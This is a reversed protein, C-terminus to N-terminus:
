RRINLSTNCHDRSSVAAIPHAAPDAPTSERHPVLARAPEPAVVVAADVPAVLQRRGRDRRRTAGGVSECTGAHPSPRTEGHPGLLAGYPRKAWRLRSV